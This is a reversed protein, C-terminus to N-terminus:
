LCGDGAGAVCVVEVVGAGAGVGLVVGGAVVCAGGGDVPVTSSGAGPPV